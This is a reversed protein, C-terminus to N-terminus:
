LFIFYASKFGQGTKFAINEAKDRGKSKNWDQLAGLEDNGETTHDHPFRKGKKFFYV